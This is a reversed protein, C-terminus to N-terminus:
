INQWPRQPPPQSYFPSPENQSRPTSCCCHFLLLGVFGLLGSAVYFNIWVAQSDKALDKDYWNEFVKNQMSESMRSSAGSKAFCKVLCTQATKKHVRPVKNFLCTWGCSRQYGQMEQMACRTAEDSHVRWLEINKQRIHNYGEELEFNLSRFEQGYADTDTLDRGADTFMDHISTALARHEADLDEESVPMALNQKRARYSSVCSELATRLHTNVREDNMARFRVMKGELAETQVMAKHTKYHHSLTMWKHQTLKEDFAQFCKASVLNRLEQMREKGLLRKDHRKLETEVTEDAAEAAKKFHQLIERDNELERMGVLARLDNRLQSVPDQSFVPMTAAKGERVAGGSKSFAQLVEGFAAVSKAVEKEAAKKLVDPDAPLDIQQLYKTFVDKKKMIQEGAWRQVREHYHLLKSQFHVAMKNRMENVNTAVDFDRLLEKYFHMAKVRAAEVQENFKALPIPDDHTDIASLLSAFWKDADQLSMEAVQKVWTNWLVPMEHFMGRNLAQLIFQIVKALSRGNMTSGEFTRAQLKQLLKSRLASVEERFEPTLQGWELRSLDVLDDKKTAPLFLTHVNLDSYIRALVHPPSNKEASSETANGVDTADSSGKSQIMEDSVTHLYSKLWDTAGDARHRHEEPIEQVFDEVVWTLPPFNRVSLFEPTELGDLGAAEASSRTRFLQAQRALMELLNVAQQDIIKVSNYVLHGGLLTAITFIQADYTQSVSPGFFGESDLLWVESGDAARLETRCLWIGMTEPSTKRGVQFVKPEGVLSNLLFSKGSHYPGVVSLISINADHRSLTRLADAVLVMSSHDPTPQVVQFPENYRLEAASAAAFFQAAAVGAAAAWLLPRTRDNGRRARRSTQTM